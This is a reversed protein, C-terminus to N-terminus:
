KSSELWHEIREILGYVLLSHGVGKLRWETPKTQQKLTLEDLLFQQVEPLVITDEQANVVLVKAAQSIGEPLGSTGILLTLDEQLKKRGKNTLPKHIPGSPLSNLPAPYSAKTLFNILMKQEEDTGLQNQMGKLAALLARNNRGNPLFRSFSALLVLHTAHAYIKKPVLHPGLSHAIVVRKIKGSSTGISQWSPSSLPLEGYGREASQWQWENDRFFREWNEWSSSDSGWGHMAYVEKM